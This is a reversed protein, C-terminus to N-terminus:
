GSSFSRRLRLVFVIGLMTTLAIIMTVVSIANIEPSIHTQFQSWVFIPLTNNTGGLFFAATLENFSTIAAFLFAAMVAPQIIPLTIRRFTTLSSAGLDMSAEELSKDLNVLGVNSVIIFSFPLTITAHGVIVTFLSPRLGIAHFYLLLAVAFVLTPTILPLYSITELLRRFRFSYRHLAYGALTSLLTTVAGTGVAVLFSNRLSELLVRNNLAVRYWKLGIGSIPPTIRNGTNFSFVTLIILPGLFFLYLFVGNVTLLGVVLAHGIRAIQSQEIKEKM